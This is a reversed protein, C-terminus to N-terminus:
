EDYKWGEIFPIKLKFYLERVYDLGSNFGYHPLVPFSVCLIGTTTLTRVSEAAILPLASLIFDPHSLRIVEEIYDVTYNTESKPLSREEPRFIDFASIKTVEVDLDKLTSHLWEINAGNSNILAKKGAFYPKLQEIEKKYTIQAETIFKEALAEKGFRRAITRTFEITQEFGIPLSIQLTETDFNKDLFAALSKVTPGNTVPLNVKAKKFNKIEEISTQRIYRCNIKIGLATLIQNIAKFNSNATTALSQEGILNVFDNSPNITRDIFKNAILQCSTLMGSYFDGGMVGDSPLHLLQDKTNLKSILSNIDDGILGTPCSTILFIPHTPFRKKM